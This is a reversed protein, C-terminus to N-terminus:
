ADRFRGVITSTVEVSDLRDVLTTRRSMLTSRHSTLLRLDALSPIGRVRRLEALYHEIDRTALSLEWVHARAGDARPDAMIRREVDAIADSLNEAQEALDDVRRVTRRRGAADPAIELAAASIREFERVALLYQEIPDASAAIDLLGRAERAPRHRRHRERRPRVLAKTMRWALWSGGFLLAGTLAVALLAMLLAVVAGVAVVALLAAPVWFIPRRPMVELFRRDLHRGYM